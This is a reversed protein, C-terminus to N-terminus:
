SKINCNSDHGTMTLYRDLFSTTSVTVHGTCLHLENNCIDGEFAIM